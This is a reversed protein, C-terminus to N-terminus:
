PIHKYKEKFKKLWALPCGLDIFAPYLAPNINTDNNLGFIM